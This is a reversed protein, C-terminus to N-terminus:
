IGEVAIKINISVSGDWGNSRLFNEIKGAVEHLDDSLKTALKPQMNLDIWRTAAEEGEDDVSSLCFDYDNRDILGIMYGELHEKNENTM